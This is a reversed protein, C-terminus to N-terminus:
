EENKPFDFFIQSAEAEFFHKWEETNINIAVIGCTPVNLINTGCLRNAFWTFTPNHGFLALSNVKDSITQIISVIAGEGAEYISPNFTLQSEKLNLGAAFYTATTKARNAPSSVILDFTLNKEVLRQAMIPADSHGRKNLPRDFDSLDADSWSSKAHRILYLTKM